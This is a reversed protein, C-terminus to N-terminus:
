PKPYSSIVFEYTGGQPGGSKHFEYTYCVKSTKGGDMDQVTISFSPLPSAYGNGSIVGSSILEFPCDESTWYYPPNGGTAHFQTSWSEFNDEFLSMVRYDVRFNIDSILLDPVPIIKLLLYSNGTQEPIGSDVVSVLITQCTQGTVIGSLLGSASMSLGPPPSNCSWQYPATGGSASFQVMYESGSIGPELQSPTILVGSMDIKGLQSSIGCYNM